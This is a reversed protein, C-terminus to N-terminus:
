VRLWGMYAKGLAGNPLEHAENPGLPRTTADHTISGAVRLPLSSLKVM